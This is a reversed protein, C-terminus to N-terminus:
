GRIAAPHLARLRGDNLLARYVQVNELVRQVYDRTESVPIMEIWDIADIEGKRFDGNDRLWRKVRGPGANYAALALAYSGGFDALVQSFYATGITMNYTPDTLLRERSFPMGLGKAVSSATAPMLQMLGRAGAWSVAEPNFASEQRMLGLVIGGELGRRNPPLAMRPWGAELLHVGDKLSDKAAWVAVDVRGAETAIASALVHEAPTRAIRVLHRVFFKLHDRELSQSALAAARVVDRRAYAKADSETVTPAKPMPRAAGTQQLAGAALQGYFTTVFEAAVGFWHQAKAKDGAAEAARGAWYAGRAKSVPYNVGEYLRIFHALAPKPDKLFRLAIFGALFEADAFSEGEKQRHQSALRYAVSVNGKRLERRALIGQERWVLAPRPLADPLQWIMAIAEDDRNKRRRWRLREYVLGPDNELEKPVRRIAWDVGGEFARLRMRAVVVHSYDGKIRRLLRRAEWSRGDWLLRDMRLEHDKATLTRRFRSYFARESPADFNSDIWTKRILEDAKATDGKRKLAEALHLAGMPTRPPHKGFWKTIASDPIRENIAYEASELMDNMLPWDANDTIFRTVEDFDVREGRTTFRVWSVYKSLVKDGSQGALAYAKTWDRLDIARFVPAHSRGMVPRRQPPLHPIGAQAERAAVASAAEAPQQAGSNGPALAFALLLGAAIFSIKTMARIVGNKIRVRDRM